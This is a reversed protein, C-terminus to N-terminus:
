QMLVWIRQHIGPLNRITECGVMIRNHLTGVDYVPTAIDGCIFTKHICILAGQPSTHPQWNCSRYCEVTVHDLGRAMCWCAGSMATVADSISNRYFHTGTVEPHQPSIVWVMNGRLDQLLEGATSAEHKTVCLATYEEVQEAQSIPAHPVVSGAICQVWVVSCQEGTILRRSHTHTSRKPAAPTVFPTETLVLFDVTQVQHHIEELDNLDQTPFALLIGKPHNRLMVQKITDYEAKTVELKTPNATDEDEDWPEKSVSDPTADMVCISQVGHNNENMGANSTEQHLKDVIANVWRLIETDNDQTGIPDDNVEICCNSQLFNSQGELSLMPQELEKVSTLDVDCTNCQDGIEDITANQEHSSSHVIAKVEANYAKVGVDFKANLEAYFAKQAAINADIKAEFDACLRKMLELLSAEEEKNLTTGAM